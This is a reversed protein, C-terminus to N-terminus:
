RPRRCYCGLCPSRSGNGLLTHEASVLRGGGGLMRGAIVVAWGEPGTGSTLLGPKMKTRLYVGDCFCAKPTADEGEGSIDLLRVRRLGRFKIM